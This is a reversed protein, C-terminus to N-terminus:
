TLSILKASMSELMAKKTWKPCHLEFVTCVMYLEDKTMKTRATKTSPLWSSLPYMEKVDSDSMSAITWQKPGTHVVVCERNQKWPAVSRITTGNMYICNVMSSAVMLRMFIPNWVPIRDDSMLSKM